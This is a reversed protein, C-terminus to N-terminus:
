RLGRREAICGSRMDNPGTCGLGYSKHGNARWRACTMAISWNCWHKAGPAFAEQTSIRHAYASTAMLLVTTGALLLKKM